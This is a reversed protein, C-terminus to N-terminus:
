ERAGELIPEGDDAHHPYVIFDSRHLLHAGEGISTAVRADREVRVGNLREALNRDREAVDVAREEGDGTVLDAGWLSDAGQDHAIALRDLRDDVAAALLEADTGAGLVHGPDDREARRGPEGRLLLGREGRPQALQAVVELPPQERDNRVGDDVAPLPLARRLNRVDRNR